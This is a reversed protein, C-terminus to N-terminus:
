IAEKEGDSKQKEAYRSPPPSNPLNRDGCALWSELKQMDM